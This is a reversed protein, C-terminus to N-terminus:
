GEEQETGSGQPRGIKRKEGPAAANGGEAESPSEANRAKPGKQLKHNESILRDLNKSNKQNQASVM